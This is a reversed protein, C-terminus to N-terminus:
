MTYLFFTAIVFYVKVAWNIMLEGKSNCLTSNCYCTTSSKIKCDRYPQYTCYYRYTCETSICGTTQNTDACDFVSSHFRYDDQGCVIESISISVYYILIYYPIMNAIYRGDTRTVLNIETSVM